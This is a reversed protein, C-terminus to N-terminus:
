SYLKVISCSHEQYFMEAAKYLATLDAPSKLCLKALQFFSKKLQLETATETTVTPTSKLGIIM